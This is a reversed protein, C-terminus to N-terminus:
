AQQGLLFHETMWPAVDANEVPYLNLVTVDPASKASKSQVIASEIASYQHYPRNAEKALEISIRADLRWLALQLRTSFDAEARAALQARELRLAAFTVWGLGGLVLGAIALLLLLGGRKGRFFYRM